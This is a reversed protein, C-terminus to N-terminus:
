RRAVVRAALLGQLRVPRRGRGTTIEAVHSITTSRCALTSDFPTGARALNMSSTARVSGRPALANCVAGQRHRRTDHSSACTSLAVLRRHTVTLGKGPSRRRRQRPVHVPSRRDCIARSRERPLSRPNVAPTSAGKRCDCRKLAFPNRRARYAIPLRSIPFTSSAGCM